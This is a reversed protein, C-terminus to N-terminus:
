FVLEPNKDNKGVSSGRYCYVSPDAMWERLAPVDEACLTRVLLQATQLKPKENIHDKLSM